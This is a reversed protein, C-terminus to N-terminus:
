IALRMTQSHVGFHTTMFGLKRYLRTAKSNRLDVELEVQEFGADRVFSICAQLLRLAIGEGHWGPLVSVNTVFATRHEGDNCYAAVLGALQDAAWAEFREARHVIKDAYIDLDVRESLPPVFAAECARLHSAVEIADARNRMIEFVAGTM